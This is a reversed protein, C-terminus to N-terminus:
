DCSFVVPRIYLSMFWKVINYFKRRKGQEFDPSDRTFAYHNDGRGAELCISNSGTSHEQLLKLTNGIEERQCRSSKEENRMTM